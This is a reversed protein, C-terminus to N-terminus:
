FSDILVFYVLFRLSSRVLILSKIGFDSIIYIYIYIYENSIFLQFFPIYKKYFFSKIYM